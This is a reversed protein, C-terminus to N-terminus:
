LLHNLPTAAIRLDYGLVGGLAAGLVFVTALWLTAKQRINPETM